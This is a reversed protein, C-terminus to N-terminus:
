HRDAAEPFSLKLPRKEAIFKPLRGAHGSGFSGTTTKRAFPQDV